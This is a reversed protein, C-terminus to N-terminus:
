AAERRYSHLLGGLRDFRHVPGDGSHSRLPPGAIMRNGLGQHPRELHYHAAYEDIARRLHREGLPILRDLCESKISLVFREASANLNASRPPLMVPEVGRVASPWRHYEVVLRQQDNLIGAIIVSLLQWPQFLMSM